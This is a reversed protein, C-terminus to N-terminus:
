FQDMYLKIIQHKVDREVNNLGNRSLSLLIVFSETCYFDMCGHASNWRWHFKFGPGRIGLDPASAVCGDTHKEM